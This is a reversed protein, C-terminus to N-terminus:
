VVGKYVLSLGTLDSPSFSSQKVWAGNVKKYIETAEKWTGSVKVYVGTGSSSSTVVITHNAAVSSITYIYGSVEYTVSWTIGFIGGGYYAVEFHLTADHLETATWTGTNSLTITQTSTSTFYQENGKQTSGSYLKINAKHTSDHTTSETFGYCKVSMSTITANSPIDSFDFSYIAWGTATNNNNDKVYTSQTGTYGPSEATHGVAYNFTNGTQSSNLYFNAGSASLETSYSDATQNITGGQEQVFQSTVDVNNDKITIGSLTDTTIYVDDGEYPTTDSAQVNASTSNQITVSYQTGLSYTVEIEAGYVYLYPYQSSTSRLTVMICFNAGYGSLTSWNLSGNPFTYVDSTQTVDSELTTNAIASSSSASSALRLRYTSGTSLYQNRYCRIKIAFSTVNAGSPVSDFNFGSIYAYYTNSSSNRGRISCYNATHDTNYYMNSPNSVTVRQTSSVSYSSPVLRITAM